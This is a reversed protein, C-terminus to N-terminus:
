ANNQAHTHVFQVMEQPTTSPIFLLTMRIYKFMNDTYLNSNIVYDDELAQEISEPLEFHWSRDVFELKLKTETM